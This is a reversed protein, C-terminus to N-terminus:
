DGPASAADRDGPATHWPDSTWGCEQLLVPPMDPVDSSEENCSRMWEGMAALLPCRAPFGRILKRTEPYSTGRMADGFARWEDISAGDMAALDARAQLCLDDFERRVVRWVKPDPYAAVIADMFARWHRRQRADRPVTSAYRGAPSAPLQPVVRRPSAEAPMVAHADAAAPRADSAEDAAPGAADSSAAAPPEPAHATIPRRPSATDSGRWWLAAALVAACAVLATALLKM